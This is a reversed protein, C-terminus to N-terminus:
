RRFLAALLATAVVATIGTASVIMHGLEFNRDLIVSSIKVSLLLGLPVILATILWKLQPAKPRFFLYIYRLWLMTFFAYAFLYFLVSTAPLLDAINAKALNTLFFITVATVILSAPWFSFVTLLVLSTLTGALNACFDIIDSNRGVYGQLLEDAVSYWVVVFLVWWAGAKRWNVKKNPYVAFWLLFVLLMYAIFHISKDSVQAQYVM